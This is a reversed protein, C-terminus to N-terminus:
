VNERDFRKVIDEAIRGRDGVTIGNKRAWRRVAEAKRDATGSSRGPAKEALEVGAGIGLRTLTEMVKNAGEASGDFVVSLNWTRVNKGKDGKVDTVRVTQTAM